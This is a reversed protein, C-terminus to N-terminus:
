LAQEVLGGDTVDGGAVAPREVREVAGHELGDEQGVGRGLEAVGVEELADVRDPAADVGREAVEGHTLVEDARLQDLDGAVRGGLPAVEVCLVHALAGLAARLVDHGAGVDVPELACGGAPADSV